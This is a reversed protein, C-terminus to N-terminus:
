TFSKPAAGGSHFISSTFFIAWAEVTVSPLMVRPTATPCWLVERILEHALCVGDSRQVFADLEALVRLRLEGESLAQSHATDVVDQPNVAVCDQFFLPRCLDVVLDPLPREFPAEQTECLVAHCLRGEASALRSNLEFSRPVDSCRCMWPSEDCGFRADLGHDSVCNPCAKERLLDQLRAKGLDDLCGGGGVEVGQIVFVLGRCLQINLFRGLCCLFRPLLCDQLM